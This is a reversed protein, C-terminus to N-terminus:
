VNSFKSAAAKPEIFSICHLIYLERTTESHKVSVLNESTGVFNITEQLM